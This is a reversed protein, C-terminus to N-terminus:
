EGERIRGTLGLLLYLGGSALLGSVVAREAVAGLPAGPEAVFAYHIIAAFVIPLLSRLRPPIQPVFKRTVAAGALALLAVQILMSIPTEM